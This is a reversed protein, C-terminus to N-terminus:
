RKGCGSRPTPSQTEDLVSGTFFELPLGLERAAELLGEEDAKLEVSALMPWAPRLWDTMSKGHRQGARQVIEHRSVGRRCGIGVCLRRPHLLLGPTDENKWSVLVQAQPDDVLTLSNKWKPTMACVSFIKPTM